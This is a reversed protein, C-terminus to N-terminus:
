RNNPPQRTVRYKKPSQGCMKKFTAYFQSISGFGSAIAIEKIPLHTILLLRQAHAIRYWTLYDLISMKFHSRFLKMAYNPHLDVVEAVQRVSLFHTYHGGMYHAMQRAKQFGLSMGGSDVSQLPRRDDTELALSLRRLRAEIELLMVQRRETTAFFIDQQWRKFLWLDVEYANDVDSLLDGGLLRQTLVQPLDWQLYHTLPLTLWHLVTAEGIDIIQHPITAWFVAVAGSSLTIQREGFLYTLSGKEVFNLEIEKHWHAKPNRRAVVRQSTLGYEIPRHKYHNQTMLNQTYRFLD